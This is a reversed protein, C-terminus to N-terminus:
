GRIDETPTPVTIEAKGTLKDLIACSSLTLAIITLAIYKM